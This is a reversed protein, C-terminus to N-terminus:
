AAQYYRPVHYSVDTGVNPVLPFRIKPIETVSTVATSHAPLTHLIQSLRPPSLDGCSCSRRGMLSAPAGWSLSVIKAGRM